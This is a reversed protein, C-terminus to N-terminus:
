ESKNHRERSFRSISFTFITIGFNTALKRWYNGRVKLCTDGFIYVRFLIGGKQNNRLLMPM